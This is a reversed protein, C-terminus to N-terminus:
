SKERMVCRIGMSSESTANLRNTCIPQPAVYETTGNMLLFDSPDTEPITPAPPFAPATASPKQELSTQGPRGGQENEAPDGRSRGQQHKGHSKGLRAFRGCGLCGVGRKGNRDVCHGRNDGSDKAIPLKGNVAFWEVFLLLMIQLAEGGSASHGARRNRQGCKGAR